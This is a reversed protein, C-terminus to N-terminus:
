CCVVLGVLGFRWNSGTGRWILDTDLKAHTSTKSPHRAAVDTRQRRRGLVLPIGWDTWGRESARGGGTNTSSSSLVGFICSTCGVINKVSVDSLVPQGFVLVM